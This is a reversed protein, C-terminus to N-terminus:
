FEPWHWCSIIKRKGNYTYHHEVPCKKSTSNSIARNNGIYFGIHYHNKEYDGKKDETKEWVLVDGEKLNSLKIREWGSKKMDEITSLVVAHNSKLFKFLMLISSVFYACSLDGENMIDKKKKQLEIFLSQFMKTGPSRKIVSLYSDFILIKIKKNRM